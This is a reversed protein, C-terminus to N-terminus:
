FQVKKELSDIFLQFLNDVSKPQRRCQPAGVERMRFVIRDEIPAHESCRPDPTMEPHM